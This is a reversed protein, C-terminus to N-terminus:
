YKYLQVTLSKDTHVDPTEDFYIELFTEIVDHILGGGTGILPMAINSIELKEYNDRVKELIRRIDTYEANGDSKDAICAHIIKIKGGYSSMKIKGPTWVRNGDNSVM